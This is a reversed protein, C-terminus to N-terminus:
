QLELSKKKFAHTSFYGLAGGEINSVPNARYARSWSRGSTINM